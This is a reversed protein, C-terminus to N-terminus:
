CEVFLRAGAGLHVHEVERRREPVLMIAAAVDAGRAHHDSPVQLVLPDVQPGVPNLHVILARQTDVQLGWVM